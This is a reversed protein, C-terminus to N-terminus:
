AAILHDYADNASMGLTTRCFAELVTDMHMFVDSETAGDGWDLGSDAAAQKWEVVQAMYEDISGLLHLYEVMVELKQDPRTTRAIAQAEADASWDRNYFIIHSAQELNLGRQSVGLSALLVPAPGFRFREDLAKTRAAINEKGTFLVAEIGRAALERELRQLLNPSTAYLITKKGQAALEVLRDVAFRQKSTMPSYCHGVGADSAHPQNAAQIVANIRALVAIFNLGKGELQRDKKYTEFWESFKVASTLYHRLHGADWQITRTYPVPRPCGAYPSVEPEGRLRRQLFCATWNRFDVVNNIKPIERKAGGRLDDKFENTAWELVVHRDRFADIGRQAATASTLLRAELYLGSRIDYPQHAVGGKVAAAALPLIDRPYNGIPTGDLCYLRRAGLRLLARSQQSVPNSLISGEDAIVMGIRHRLRHSITQKGVGAKAKLRNYSVINIERLQSADAASKIVQWRDVGLRIKKLEREMEPVLGSEVCILGKGSLIALAISLRAKGTGQEWAAIAGYPKMLLEILSDEQYPWLWNIGANRIQARYSKALEPFAAIMGEHAVQWDAGQREDQGDEFEFLKQLQDRRYQVTFGDKEILYDGGLPAVSVSEGKRIVPSKTNGREMLMGRRAVAVLDSIRSAKVVHRFATNARAHKRNLKRWFGALTDSVVPRGGAERIIELTEAFAAEPDEQLLYADLLLRGDGIFRIGQPYRHKARTGTEVKGVSGTLLHNMVRAETFGCGFKLKLKRNHHHLTVTPDGTVPLTIVPARVDVNGVIMRPRRKDVAECWLDFSPWVGNKLVPYSAVPKVAKTPGFVYIATEVTAGELKFTDAPLVIEAHLRARAFCEDRASTPLLAIVINAASLGHDVAYMHSVASTNPGFTGYCTSEFGKMQPHELHLGFPPNIIAAAFEKATVQEMGATVFEFNFGAKSADETLADICQADIDCGYLYHKDPDAFQLLRGSGISNDFLAVPNNSKAIAADLSPSVLSWMGDCVWDPTYFQGQAEDRRRHLDALSNAKRVTTGKAILRLSQDRWGTNLLVASHSM